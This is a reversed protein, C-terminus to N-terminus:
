KASYAKAVRLAVFALVGAIILWPFHFTYEVAALFVWNPPAAGAEHMGDHIWNPISFWLAILFLVLVPLRIAKPWKSYNM